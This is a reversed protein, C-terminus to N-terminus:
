PTVSKGRYLPPLGKKIRFHNALSLTIVPMEGSEYAQELRDMAQKTVGSWSELQSPRLNMALALDMLMEDILKLDTMPSEPGQNEDVVIPTDPRHGQMVQQRYSHGNVCRMSRDDNEGWCITCLRNM